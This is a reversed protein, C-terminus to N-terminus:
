FAAQSDAAAVRGQTSVISRTWPGSELCPAPSHHGRGALCIGETGDRDRVPWAAIKSGCNPAAEINGKVPQRNADRAQKRSGYRGKEHVSVHKRQLTGTHAAAAEQVAPQSLIQRLQDQHSLLARGAKLIYLKLQQCRLLGLDM